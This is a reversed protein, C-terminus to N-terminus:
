HFCAAVQILREMQKELVRRNGLRMYTARRGVGEVGQRASRPASRRRQREATIRRVQTM